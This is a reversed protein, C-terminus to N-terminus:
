VITISLEIANKDTQHFALHACNSHKSQKNTQHIRKNTAHHLSQNRACTTIDEEPTNKGARQPAHMYRHRGPQNKEIRRPNLPHSGAWCQYSDCVNEGSSTVQQPLTADRRTKPMVFWRPHNWSCTGENRHGVKTGLGPVHRMPRHHCQRHRGDWTWPRQQALVALALFLCCRHGPWDMLISQLWWDSWQEPRTPPLTPRPARTQCPPTRARSWHLPPRQVM